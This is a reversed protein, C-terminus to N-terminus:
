AVEVVKPIMGVEELKVRTLGQQFGEDMDSINMRDGVNNQFVWGETKEEEEVMIELWRGVWKRIEIGLGTVEVLPLM